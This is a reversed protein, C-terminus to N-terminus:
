EDKWLQNSAYAVITALRLSNQVQTSVRKGNIFAITQETYSRITIPTADSNRLQELGKAYETIISIENKYEPYLGRIIHYFEDSSKGDLVFTAYANALKPIKTQEMFTSMESDSSTYGIKECTKYYIDHNVSDFDRKATLLGTKDMELLLQNHIYGISDCLSTYEGLGSVYSPIVLDQMAISDNNVLSVAGDTGPSHYTSEQKELVETKCFVAAASAGVAGVVGGTVGGYKFGTLAGAADCVVVAIFKHFFSRISRRVAPTETTGALSDSLVAIQEQLDNLEAEEFATLEHQEGALLMQEQQGTPVITQEDSCSSVALVFLVSILSYFLIKKM